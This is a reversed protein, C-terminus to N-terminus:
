EYIIHYEFENLDVDWFGMTKLYNVYGEFDELHTMDSVKKIEQLHSESLIMHIRKGQFWTEVKSAKQDIIFKIDLVDRWNVSYPNLIELVM